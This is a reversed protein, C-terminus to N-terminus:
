LHAQAAYRGFLAEGVGLGLCVAIIFSVQFTMAVLMFAFGLAAQVAHLVGRTIDHSLIFPAASRFLRLPAQSFPSARVDSNRPVITTRVTPLASSKEDLEEITGSTSRISQARSPSTSTSTTNLKNAILIQARKRWHVEMVSRCAGIWREVIALLFLGICAGVMAGASQPVWGLFWLMDGPTFHLYPTMHGAALSMPGDMSMDMGNDHALALLPSLALSALLAIMSTRSM